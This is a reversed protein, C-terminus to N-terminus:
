HQDLGTENHGSTDFDGIIILSLTHTAPAILITPQSHM